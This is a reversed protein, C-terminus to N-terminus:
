PSTPKSKEAADLEVRPVESGTLEYAVHGRSEQNVVGGADQMQFVQTDNLEHTPEDGAHMQYIQTDNLEHKPVEGLNSLQHSQISKSDAIIADDDNPDVSTITQMSAQKQRQRKLFFYGGIALALVVVVAAVSIGAIAGTSLGSKTSEPSGTTGTTGTTSPTDSTVATSDKSTITVVNAAAGEVWSCSSVSFNGREYDVTLYAEQLFTRGLTYQTENAAKKLPFYRSSNTVMPYEAKLDFASYPLVITVAEGGTPTDALRFRVQANEALLTQHHSDNVLYLGTTDDLTLGFATEFQKCATEPLWLNPDTSDIFILIPSALLSAQVTGSYSISQLSVVIDRSVDQALTFSVSNSTFRSTDYGGFILQGYVQKLRYMAGATYSWSLSPIVNQNKLSTFYTPGTSNGLSSLNAPQTGLGFIGLYFPSTSAIGGVTQNKLTVGNAGAVLGLGVTDTGFNAAQTYGLNAELGVGDKNIGFFGNDIWTSSTNPSFMMGRSSACGAPVTAFTKNSCGYESLVVLTEPSTTSITVRVDQEPTGVRLNFTSWPGDIGEFYQSPPIVLAQALDATNINERVVVNDPVADCIRILRQTFLLTGLASYM